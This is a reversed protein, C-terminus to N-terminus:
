RANTFMTLDIANAMARYGAESPHVHDDSDFKPLYQSPHAPDHTAQAFDVVGDYIKTTRIWQNLKERVAMGEPTACVCGGYPTLTAGFVRMGHQHAQVAIQSLGQELRVELDGYPQQNDTYRAIDNISELVILYRAGSRALVDWNVRSVAGPGAGDRLVRNGSIGVDVVGLVGAKQTTPDAALREALFDPWRHNTNRKSRAGDTISDGLTVVASDGPAYVDVGTLFYWSEIPRAADGLTPAGPLNGTMASSIQSSLEHQTTAQTHEPFYVSVSLNSLAPVHLVVPDSVITAGPPIVVSGSHHFTLVRDTGLQIASTEASIAIHAAGIQLPQDGFRNSLWIRAQEGGVSVHVIQRVTQGTFEPGQGSDVAMMAAGWTAVWPSGATARPVDNAALCYPVALLVACLSVAACRLLKRLRLSFDGAPM